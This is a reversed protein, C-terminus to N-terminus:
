GRRKETINNQRELRDLALRGIFVLRKGIMNRM